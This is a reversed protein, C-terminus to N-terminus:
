NYSIIKGIISVSEDSDEERNFIADTTKGYLELQNIQMCRPCGPYEEDLVLRIYTFSDTEPFEYTKFQCDGFSKDKEVKQIVTWTVNDNSGQLSFSYLLCCCAVDLIHEDDVCCCPYWCCGNRVSYGSVRMGKGSMSYMIWPKDNSNKDILNSCWDMKEDVRITENPYTQHCKGDYHLGLSGSAEIIIKSGANKAQKFISNSKDPFAVFAVSAIFTFFFM